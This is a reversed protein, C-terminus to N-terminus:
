AGETASMELATLLSGLKKASVHLKAHESELTSLDLRGTSVSPDQGDDHIDVQCGAGWSLLCIISLLVGTYAGCAVDSGIDLQTCNHAM